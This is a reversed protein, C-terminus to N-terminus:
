RDKKLFSPQDLIPGRLSQIEKELREIKEQNQRLTKKLQFQRYVDSLGGIVVGLFVSCLIVLFLPVKSVELWQSDQLPYLGFRLVVEERNQISFVIAFIFVLSWFLTKVWRM